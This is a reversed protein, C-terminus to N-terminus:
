RPAKQKMRKRARIKALFSQLGDSSKGTIKVHPSDGLAAEAEARLEDSLHEYRQAEYMGLTNTIRELAEPTVLNARDDM